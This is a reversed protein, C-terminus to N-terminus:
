YNKKLWKSPNQKEYGKWIEFHLKIQENNNQDLVVGIKEKALLEEGAKVFVEKLGSYVSFYQGHNILIAKGQGKIFFIRSVKGDFVSYVLSNQNTAIDIGNNFTEINSFVDHNKKGYEQIIVGESVPWPLKGLNLNFDKSLSKAEPTLSTSKKEAADRAKKIEEEIIARIKSELKEARKKNEDLEQIFRKESKTLNNVLQEKEEKTSQQSILKEKKLDILQSKEKSENILKEKEKLLSRNKKNLINTQDQIKRVQNRRFSTYQKLYRIRKYAQNFDKASVIFILNNKQERKAFAAYIIKGYEKKLGELKNKEFVIESDIRILKKETRKIEKSLLSIEIILTQIYLEQNSIQKNLINLYSLSRTKNIKTKDLLGQTYNIEKEIAAKQIKLEEKQAVLILPAFLIIIIKIKNFRFM